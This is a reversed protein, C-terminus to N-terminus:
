FKQVDALAGKAGDGMNASDGKGGDGATGKGNFSVGTTVPAADGTYAMGVAHGGRGGGGKGGNGGAGGKGGPCANNLGSYTPKAVGGPGPEGGSGGVQGAGGDGGNGGKGVHLTVDAFSLTAGLSVLAISAGGAGGGRGGLGGCGGAGGSGGSAGGASASDACKGAGSGGKAGGGGGGGQAPKGTGGQTGAVGSYGSADLTGLATAGLGSTAVGFVDGDDGKTGAVCTAAGEGKGGNLTTGPLGDSGNGGSGTSGNGGQGSVSDPDCTNTVELGPVVFADSCADKGSNGPDGAKAADQYAEGAAGQKGDGATVDCRTFSASAQAVLVAISSGGAQEANASTIAFDFVEVSTTAKSIVLAIADANPALSTKKSADYGWPTKDSACDLAGYLTVDATISVAEMDFKEGCAYVPKGNSQALAVAASLSKLPKGRSGVYTDDGLSSSVFVGCTDAIAGVNESPICGPPTGGDGGGGGDSTTTTTSTGPPCTAARDCDSAADFFACGTAVFPMSAGGCIAVLALWQLTRM